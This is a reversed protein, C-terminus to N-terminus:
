AMKDLWYRFVYLLSIVDINYLIYLEKVLITADWVKNLRSQSREM